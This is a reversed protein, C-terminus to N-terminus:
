DTVLESILQLTLARIHINATISCYFISSHSTM